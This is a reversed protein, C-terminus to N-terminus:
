GRRCVDVCTLMRSCVHAYALMRERASLEEAEDEGPRLTCVSDLQNVADQDQATTHARSEGFVLADLTRSRRVHMGVREQADEPSNIHNSLLYALDYILCMDGGTNGRLDLLLSEIRAAALEALAAHLAM